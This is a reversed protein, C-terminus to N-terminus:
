RSKRATWVYASFEKLTDFGMKQYLIVAKLNSSTVTLSVGTFRHERFSEVARRMLEYGIGSGHQEPTVCVQTVHGVGRNVVSTLVMGTLSGTDKDFALFSGPAHFLGCGPYHIINRLFREAGTVTRYQDNIESDVHDRYAHTILAAAEDFYRENWPTIEAALVRPVPLRPARRLDLLMFRRAFAQFDERQFTSELSGAGFTMLQAEIRRIGPTEQMTEIVHTLLRGETGGCYPRSVFLNGILGKYDEYVFFSYGVTRGDDIAAYGPLARSDVFRRILDVSSTYDWQLQERWVVTEEELLPDLDTARIQRLDLIDMTLRGALSIKCPGSSSM